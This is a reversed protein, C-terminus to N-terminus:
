HSHPYWRCVYVYIYIYINYINVYSIHACLGWMITWSRLTVRIPVATQCESCMSPMTGFPDWANVLDGDKKLFLTGELDRVDSGERLPEQEERALGPMGSIRTFPSRKPELSGAKQPPRISHPATRLDGPEFHSVKLPSVPFGM